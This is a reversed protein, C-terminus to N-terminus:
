TDFAFLISFRGWTIVTLLFARKGRRLHVPLSLTASIIAPLIKKPPFSATLFVSGTPLIEQFVHILDM